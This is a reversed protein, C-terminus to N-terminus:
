NLQKIYTTPGPLGRFTVTSDVEDTDIRTDHFSGNRGFPFM